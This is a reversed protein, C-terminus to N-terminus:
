GLVTLLTPMAIIGVVISVSTMFTSLTVDGRIISTFGPAMAAIPAFLVMVLLLRFDQPLPLQWVGLALVICIAYRVLLYRAAQGYRRRDLKVELGIGIMLMALFTNASGVTTTFTIVPAPFRLDLLQMAVLVLYVDFVVSSLMSHVFGRVSTRREEDALSTGWAYAIGAAAFANGIDFLSAHVVAAPGMFGSLYPIAFAGMNFSPVNIVAFAQEQRGRRSELLVGAVQMVLNVLLGASALVLLPAADIRQSNFSTVLACPLTVKLVITAFIPFDDVTVWGIRKIGYGTAIIAVLSLAKVLIEM